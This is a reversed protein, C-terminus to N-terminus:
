AAKRQVLIMDFGSVLNHCSEFSWHEYITGKNRICITERVVYRGEANYTRDHVTSNSPGFGWNADVQDGEALVVGNNDVLPKDTDPKSDSVVPADIDILVRYNSPLDGAEPNYAASYSAVVSDPWYPAREFDNFNILPPECINTVNRELKRPYGKLWAEFEDKSVEKFKTM